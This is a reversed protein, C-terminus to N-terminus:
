LSSFTHKTVSTVGCLLTRDDRDLDFAIQCRDSMQNDSMSRVDSLSRVDVSLRTDFVKEFDSVKLVIQSRGM